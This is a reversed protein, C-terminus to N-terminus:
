EEEETDESDMDSLSSLDDFRPPSEVPPLPTLGARERAERNAERNELRDESCIYLYHFHGHDMEWVKGDEKGQM